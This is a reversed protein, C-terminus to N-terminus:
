IEMDVLSEAANAIEFPCTREFQGYYTRDWFPGTNTVHSLCDGCWMAREEIDRGCCGCYTGEEPM